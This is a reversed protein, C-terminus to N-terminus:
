SLLMPPFQLVDIVGSNLYITMWESTKPDTMDEPARLILQSEFADKLKERFDEGNKADKAVVELFRIHASLASNEFSGGFTELEKSGIGGTVPLPLPFLFAPDM